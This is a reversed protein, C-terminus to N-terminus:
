VVYPNISIYFIETLTHIIDDATILQGDNWRPDERLKVVWHSLDNGQYCEALDPLPERNGRDKLLPRFQLFKLFSQIMVDNLSIERCDLIGIILRQTPTTNPESGRRLKGSFDFGFTKNLIACTRKGWSGIQHRNAKLFSHLMLLDHHGIVGSFPIHEAQFEEADNRYDRASRNAM